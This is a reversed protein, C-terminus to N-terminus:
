IDEDKFEELFQQVIYDKIGEDILPEINRKQIDLVFYMSEIYCEEDIDPENKLGYNDLSGKEAPQYYMDCIFTIQTEEDFYIFDHNM